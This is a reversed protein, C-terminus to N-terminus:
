TDADMKAGCNHCYRAEDPFYVGGGGQEMEYNVRANCESCRINGNVTIWRGHKQVTVGSRVLFDAVNNIREGVHTIENCGALFWWTLLEILRKRDNM